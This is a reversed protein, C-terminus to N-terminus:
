FGDVALYDFGYRRMWDNYHKIADDGTLGRRTRDRLEARQVSSELQMTEHLVELQDLISELQAHLRDM